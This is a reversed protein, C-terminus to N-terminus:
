LYVPREIIDGHYGGHKATLVLRVPSPKPLRAVKMWRKGDVFSEFLDFVTGDPIEVEGVRRPEVLPGAIAVLPLSPIITM